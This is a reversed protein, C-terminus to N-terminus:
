QIRKAYAKGPSIRIVQFVSGDSAIYEDGVALEYSTHTIQKQSGADILWYGPTDPSKPQERPYFVPVLLLLLLPLFLFRKKWRM